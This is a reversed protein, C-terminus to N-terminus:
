LTSFASKFHFTKLHQTFFSLSSATRVDHPPYNFITPAAARFGRTVIQLRNKPVTLLHTNSSCLNRSQTYPRVLSALYSPFSSSCSIFALKALKFQARFDIPLWHLHYLLDSFSSYASMISPGAVLINQICQLRLINTHSVGYLVSNAYDLYAGVVSCTVTKAVDDTIAPRINTTRSLSVLSGQM